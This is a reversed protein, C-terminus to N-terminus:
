PLLKQKRENLEIIYIKVAKTLMMQLETIGTLVEINQCMKIYKPLTVSPLQENLVM